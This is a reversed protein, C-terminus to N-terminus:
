CGSLQPLQIGCLLKINKLLVTGIAQALGAKMFWRRYVTQGRVLFETHLEPLGARTLLAGTYIM